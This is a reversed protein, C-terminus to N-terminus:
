IDLIKALKDAQKQNIVPALGVQPATSLADFVSIQKPGSINVKNLDGDDNYTSMAYPRQQDFLDKKTINEKTINFLADKKTDRISPSPSPIVTDAMSQLTHNSELMEKADAGNMSDTDDDDDTENVVKVRLRAENWDNLYDDFTKTVHGYIQEYFDATTKSRDYLWVGKLVDDVEFEYLMAISLWKHWTEKQSLQLEELFEDLVDQDSGVDDLSDFTVNGADQRDLVDSDMSTTILQKSNNSSKSLSSVIRPIVSPRKQNKKAQYRIEKEKKRKSKREITRKRKRKKRLEMHDNQAAEFQIIFADFIFATLVNTVILVSVFYFAYFYIYAFQSESLEIYMRTIAHWQNVVTLELMVLLANAIYNMNNEYYYNDRIYQWFGADDVDSRVMADSMKALASEKTITGGFCYIGVVAFVYFVCFELSMLVGVKKLVTVSTSIILKFREITALARMFRLLRFAVIGNSQTTRGGHTVEYIDILLSAYVVVFDLVNFPDRLFYVGFAM